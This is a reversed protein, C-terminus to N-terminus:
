HVCLVAKPNSALEGKHRDFLDQLAAIFKKHLTDVAESSPSADKPVPIPKGVVCSLPVRRPLVTPGIGRALPLAIRLNKCIWLRAALMFSYTTYIDTEGFTYVPVLDVGYELALKIFGKRKSVFVHHEGEKTLMQEMEGGPLIYLSWGKDLVRRATKRGADVCGM